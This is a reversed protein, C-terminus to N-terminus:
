VTIGLITAIIGLASTVIKKMAAKRLQDWLDGILFTEKIKSVTWIIDYVSTETGAISGSKASTYDGGPADGGEYYPAWQYVVIDDMGSPIKEFGINNQNLANILDGLFRALFKKSRMSVYRRTTTKECAMLVLAPGRETITIAGWIIPEITFTLASDMCASVHPIPEDALSCALYDPKNKIKGYFADLFPRAKDGRVEFDFRLEPFTVLKSNVLAYRGTFKERQTINITYKTNLKNIIKKIIGITEELSNKIPKILIIAGAISFNLMGRVIRNSVYPGIVFTVFILFGFSAIALPDLTNVIVYYFAFALIGFISGIESVASHFLAGFLISLVIAILWISLFVDQINLLHVDFTILMKFSTFYSVILAFSPVFLNRRLPVSWFNKNINRALVVLLYLGSLIFCAFMLIGVLILINDVISIGLYGFPFKM